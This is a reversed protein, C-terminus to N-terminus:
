VEVVRIREDVHDKLAQEVMMKITRGSGMCDACAGRMSCYVVSDKIDVLEIGGGDRALQPRVKEELVHEVLKAFKFPSMERPPQAKPQRAMPLVPLEKFATPQKGWVKHLIDQLGGPKHHCSMCAGGAKVANTIEPITKLELERIKRELYPETLGFCTCVLRGEEQEDRRIDVGLESLDVGRKQAWNFVAAELAEAGMVSCHIKAQPLGELYNVIDQNTIKLAGIPTFSGEEIIACLAESAAIASTCGFTLYRAETIRDQKPDSPHRDVRFTFRLADGCSISGHEGFGDADEIEGLHTGPRGQVAAMFLETTKKSYNWTM